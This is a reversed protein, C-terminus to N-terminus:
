IQYSFKANLNQLFISGGIEVNIDSNNDLKWKGNKLYKWLTVGHPGYINDASYSFMNSNTSGISSENGIRWNGYTSDYWIASQPFTEKVWYSKGNVLDSRLSYFGKLEDHFSEPTDKLFVFM